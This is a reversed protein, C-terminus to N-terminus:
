NRQEEERKLKDIVSNYEEDSLDFKTRHQVKQKAWMQAISEPSVLKGLKSGTVTFQSLVNKPIDGKIGEEKQIQKLQRIQVQNFKEAEQKAKEPDKIKDIKQQASEKDDKMLYWKSKNPDSTNIGILNLGFDSWRLKGEEIRTAAQGPGFRNIVAQGLGQNQGTFINRHTMAEVGFELGPAPTVFRTIADQMREQHKWVKVANDILTFPGAARFHADKNGTAQQLMKNIWPSIFFAMTGMAALKDLVETRRVQPTDQILGRIMEGYARLSGYHYAGFMTVNPNSMLESIGRPAEELGPVKALPEAIRAPIIYNPIFKGVHEISDELSSGTRDMHEYIAQMTLFDNSSWTAKHSFNYLAKVYNLPNAYGFDESAEEMIRPKKEIEEGMNKRMLDDLSQGSNEHFMLNAGSELMSRYDDNQKTVADMARSGTKWLASYEKRMVWKSLGRNTLWFGAINPIHLLPNYFISDRLVRNVATFLRWNDPHGYIRRNFYDLTDAIVPDFDYGRFQPLKTSKWGEPSTGEGQKMAIRKFDPNEKIGDIFKAARQAKRLDTYMKLSNLLLNKHYKVNTNEEIEKTTADGINWTKGKKDVFVKQELDNDDWRAGHKDYVDSIKDYLKGLKLDIGQSRSYKAKYAAKSSQIIDQENELKEAQRELPALEKEMIASRKTKNLLGLDRGVKETWATVRGRKISIVQRNGEDDTALRMTRRKMSDTTRRLIGSKGLTRIDYKLRDFFGGKGQVYRSLHPSDIPYDKGKLENFIGNSENLIPLGVESYFKKLEDRIPYSKDDHYYTLDEADKPDLNIEKLLQKSWLQDAASGGIIHKQFDGQLDGSLRIEEKGKNLFAKVHNIGEKLNSKENQNAVVIPEGTEPDEAFEYDSLLPAIKKWYPKKALDLLNGATGKLVVGNRSLDLHGQSFKMTKAFDAYDDGTAFQQPLESSHGTPLGYEEQATKRDIIDGNSVKFKGEKEQDFNTLDKGDKRAAEMAEAHSSGEYGKGGAQIYASTIHDSEEGNNLVEKIQNIKNPSLKIAQPTGTSQFKYGMYNKLFSSQDPIQKLFNKTAEPLEMLTPQNDPMGKIAGGAFSMAVAQDALMAASRLNDTTGRPVLNELHLFKDVMAYAGLGAATLVPAEILGAGVFGIGATGVAQAIRTGLLPKYKFYNKMAEDAPINYEKMLHPVNSMKEAQEKSTGKFLDWSQYQPPLGKYNEDPRANRIEEEQPPSESINNLNIPLSTEKRQTTPNTEVEQLNDYNIPM